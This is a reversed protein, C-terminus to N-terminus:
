SPVHKMITQLSYLWAPWYRGQTVSQVVLDHPSEASVVLRTLDNNMIIM